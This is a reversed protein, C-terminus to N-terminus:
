AEAILHVIVESDTESRFHYGKKLLHARLEHHNEVIGNHVIAFEYREDCHPHANVASPVGHTAWRTHAIGCVASGDIGAAASFAAELRAVKGVEKIESLMGAGVLAMGASDYGRYELRKLGDLLIPAAERSGTYGIIGCM